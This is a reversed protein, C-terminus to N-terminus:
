RGAKDLVKRLFSGTTSSPNEAVEEPTGTAMVRGGRQGAGPGLDIVHDACKIVELNHEIIVITHGSDLLREMVELLRRVDELHLGTTPEDLVYLTMGRRPSSLERALKLRQAEGGSLSPAPQGLRLYGLGMEMLLRLSSTLRPINEFFMLAEKVTLELVQAIDLGKYRVELTEQNFRKGGCAECTTYLNPLFLLEVSRVGEGMCSECRGGKVNFSFREPGYGRVRAEPLQAFLERIPRFLGMFTAPNSRSTRGIPSQDVEVVGQLRELGRVERAGVPAHRRPAGGQLAGRAARCLVDLVLTSKGSGSVGTVCTLCGLPFSADVNKLNHEFAGLIQISPGQAPRRALPLGISRRGALYAGTLSDQCSLLGQPPGSYLVEGGLEGAGPGMDVVWDAGVITDPEHEVVVVTNGADRLSRVAEMLRAQDAPHLGVSPEDLIYLVGVLPSGMQTALRLRQVEGASLTESGRELSLYGLGLDRIPRLRAKVGSLIERAVRQRLGSLELKDLVGELEELPMRCLEDLGMAGVKFARAQPGLRSGGCDGCPREAMLRDLATRVAQDEAGDYIERLWPILGKFRAKASSASPTQEAQEGWLLAEKLGQPLDGFPVRASLGWRKFLAEMQGMLRGDASASLVPIAGDRISRSPDAVILDQHFVREVGLGSCRPCAGLPDNFSFLRLTPPPLRVQCSICRPEETFWLPDLGEPEVRVVGGSLKCATELSESLRGRKEKRVVLRDVLVEITHPQDSSLRLDDDLEQLQGDVRARLYGARLLRQLVRRHTGPVGMVVPAYLHVRHGELAMLGESMEQITSARIPAGCKPCHPEAVKSFLLRLFDYIESITGVTSRARRPVLRQEIAIAPSLGEISGVEPRDMRGLVQRAHISLTELYRRRAEAYLTDFALSSKGSGSVGTIVTLSERPISVDIGKLNHQRAERVLIQTAPMAL